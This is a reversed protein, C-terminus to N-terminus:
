EGSRADLVAQIEEASRGQAVLDRKLENDLEAQRAKRQHETVIATIPILCGIITALTVFLWMNADTTEFFQLM